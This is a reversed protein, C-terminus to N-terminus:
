GNERGLFNYKLVDTDNSTIIYVKLFSISVKQIIKLILINLYTLPLIM